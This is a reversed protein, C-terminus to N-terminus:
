LKPPSSINTGLVCVRWWWPFQQEHLFWVCAESPGLAVARGGSRADWRRAGGARASDSVIVGTEEMRSLGFDSIMIKSDDEMSYYLLNEPQYPV